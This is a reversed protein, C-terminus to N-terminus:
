AAPVGLPLGESRRSRSFQHCTRCGSCHLRWDVAATAGRLGPALASAQDHRWRRNSATTATGMNRAGHERAPSDTSSSAERTQGCGQAASAACRAIDSTHWIGSDWDAGALRGCRVVCAGRSASRRASRQLRYLGPLAPSEVATSTPSACPAPTAPCPGDFARSSREQSHWGWGAEIDGVRPLGPLM